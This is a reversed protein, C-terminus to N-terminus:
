LRLGSSQVGRRVRKGQLRIFSEVFLNCWNVIIQPSPKWAARATSCHLWATAQYLSGAWALCKCEFKICEHCQVFEEVRVKERRRGKLKKKSTSRNRGGSPRIHIIHYHHIFSQYTSWDSNYDRCELACVGRTLRVLEAHELDVKFSSSTHHQRQTPRLLSHAHITWSEYTIRLHDFCFLSLWKWNNAVSLNSCGSESSARQKHFVQLGCVIDNMKTPIFIWLNGPHKRIVTLMRAPRQAWWCKIHEVVQM